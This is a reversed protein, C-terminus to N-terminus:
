KRQQQKAMEAMFATARQQLEDATLDEKHTAIEWLHGEPDIVQGYRDGWFQDDVPMSVKAGASVATKFTADADPVFLTVSCTTGGLSKPAKTTSMPMEDALFVIGDGIKISAHMTSRPGPGPAHSLLEAGFAKKYFEIADLANKVVLHSTVSRLGEPLYSKAKAM